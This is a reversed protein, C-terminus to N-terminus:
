KQKQSEIDCTSNNISDGSPCYNAILSFYVMETSGTINGITINQDKICKHKNIGLNTFDQQSLFPFNEFECNKLELYTNNEIRKGKELRLKYEIANLSIIESYDTGDDDTLMMAIPMNLFNLYIPKQISQIKPYSSLTPNRRTFLDGIQIIFLILLYILLCSSFIGGIFTHPTEQKNITLTIPDGLIDSSKIYKIIKKGFKM